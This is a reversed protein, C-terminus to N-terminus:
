ASEEVHAVYRTMLDIAGGGVEVNKSSWGIGEERIFSGTKRVWLHRLNAVNVIDEDSPFIEVAECAGRGCEAKLEQLREWSIGDLFRTFNSDFACRHISLREWEDNIDYVQVAYARSRWAEKPVKAGHPMVIDIPVRVLSEPYADCDAKIKKWLKNKEKKPLRAFVQFLSM